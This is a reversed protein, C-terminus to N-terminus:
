ASPLSYSDVIRQWDGRAKLLIEVTERVAGRGGGSTTVRHAADRVEVVADAPAFALGCSKLVPLDLLDDGVYAVQGATTGERAVFAEFVAAKDHEGLLAADLGLETVRRILPPSRRASLLGVKLGAAQALKLGLGDRISFCKLTEGEADYYIRGDTLVGDVDCLLWALDKARQVFVSEQLDRPM